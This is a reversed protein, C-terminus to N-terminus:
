CSNGDMPRLPRRQRHHGHRRGRRRQGSDRHPVARIRCTPTTPPSSKRSGPTSPAASPPCGTTTATNPSAPSSTPSAATATSASAPRGSARRCAGPTAQRHRGQRHGRVRGVHRGPRRRGRQRTGPTGPEAPHREGATRTPYTVPATIPAPSPTQTAARPPEPSSLRPYHEWRCTPVEVDSGGLEPPVPDAHYVDAPLDYVGPQTIVTRDLTATM